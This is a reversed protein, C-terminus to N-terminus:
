EDTLPESATLLPLGCVRSLRGATATCCGAAMGPQTEARKLKQPQGIRGNM